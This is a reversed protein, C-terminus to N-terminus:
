RCRRSRGPWPCVTSRWTAPAPSAPGFSLALYYLPPSTDSLLVARIVRGPGAPPADHALYRRFAAPPVAGAPEVFDGLRVAAAAPHELSHGTAVALSFVEDAWLDQRSMSVIRPLAAMVVILMRSKM